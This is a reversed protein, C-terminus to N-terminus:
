NGAAPKTVTFTLNTGGSTTIKISVNEGAAFYSLYKSTITVTSGSVTAFANSQLDMSTAVNVVSSITENGLNSVTVTVPSNSADTTYATTALTPGLTVQNYAGSGVATETGTADKITYTPTITISDTDAKTWDADANIAGTLTFGAVGGLASMELKTALDSQSTDFDIIDGDKLAYTAKGLKYAISADAKNTTGAAFAQVGATAATMTVDSLEASTIEVGITDTAEYCTKLADGDAPTTKTYTSGSKTYYTKNSDVTSDTTKVYTNAKPVASASAVALYIKHEGAKAGNPNTSDNYAQAKTEADVFQIAKKTTDTDSTYTAAFSIEVDKDGTSKNAIGYNLSVVQGNVKTATYYPGGTAFDTSTPQPNAASYTTGSKKYYVTNAAFSTAEVYKTTIDYGNPNLAIKLATPVVVTEVEYDLINAGGGTTGGAPDTAALVPMAQSGLLVLSMATGLFKKSIKM